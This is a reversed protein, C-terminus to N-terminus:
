TFPSSALHMTKGGLLAEMAEVAGEAQGNADNLVTGTM